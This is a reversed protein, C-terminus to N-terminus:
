LSAVVQREVWEKRSLLSFSQALILCSGGCSPNVELLTLKQEHARLLPVNTKSKDIVQLEPLAVVDEEGWEDHTRTVVELIINGTKIGDVSLAVLGEAVMTFRQKGATSIFVYARKDDIWLGELLGDHFEHYSKM